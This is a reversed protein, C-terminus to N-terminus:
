FILHLIVNSPFNLLQNRFSLSMCMYLKNAQHAKYAYTNYGYIDVHSLLIANAKFVLNLREFFSIKYGYDLRSGQAHVLCLM